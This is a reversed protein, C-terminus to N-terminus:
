LSELSTELINRKYGKIDALSFIFRLEGARDTRATEAFMKLNPLMMMGNKKLTCFHVM